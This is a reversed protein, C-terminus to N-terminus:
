GRESKKERNMFKSAAPVVPVPVVHFLLLESSCGSAFAIEGKMECLLGWKSYNEMAGSYEFFIM